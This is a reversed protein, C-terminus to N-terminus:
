FCREFSEVIGQVGGSLYTLVPLIPANDYCGISDFAVGTDGGADRILSIAVGDRADAIALGQLLKLPANAPDSALYPQASAILPYFKRPVGKLMGGHSVQKFHEPSDCVPFGVGGVSVQGNRTALGWVLHDLAARLNYVIEGVMMCVRRPRQREPDRLQTALNAPGQSESKLTEVLMVLADFHERARDM